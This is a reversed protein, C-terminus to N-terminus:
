GSVAGQGPLLLITASQEGHVNRAECSLRLSSGLPEMFSLNSNAWPGESSSTVTLSADSHNGELLGEGLRWHLSPPLQSQASCTCHM